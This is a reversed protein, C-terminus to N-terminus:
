RSGELLRQLIDKEPMTGVFSEGYDFFTKPVASVRHKKGMDRFDEWDVIEARVRDSALAM